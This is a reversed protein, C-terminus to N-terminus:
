SADSRIALMCSFCNPGLDLGKRITDRGVSGNVSKLSGVPLPQCLIKPNEKGVKYYREKRVIM